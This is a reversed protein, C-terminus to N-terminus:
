SPMRAGVIRDKPFNVITVRGGTDYRHSGDTTQNGGIVEIKNGLDKTVFCVHGSSPGRTGRLVVIAGYPINTTGVDKGWNLFSRALASGTGKVNAKKLCWNVFSSCWPTQENTNIGGGIKHYEIIQAKNEEENVGRQSIAIPMWPTGSPIEEKKVEKPFDDVSQEPTRNESVNASPSRDDVEGRALRNVDSGYDSQPLLGETDNFGMQKNLFEKSKGGLSFLVVPEQMDPGDRFIGLVTTGTVVGVPASGIGSIFASTIPMAIDAWPLDATPIDEKSASHIGIIRVRLRGLEEPDNVDEVVGMFLFNNALPIM